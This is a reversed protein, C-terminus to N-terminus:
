SGPLRATTFRFHEISRIVTLFHEFDARKPVDCNAQLNYVGLLDDVLLIVARRASM